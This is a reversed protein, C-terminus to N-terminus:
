FRSLFNDQIASSILEQTFDAFGRLEDLKVWSYQDHESSLIIKQPYKIRLGFLYGSTPRNNNMQSKAHLSVLNNTDFILGTEENIERIIADEFSEKEELGGGPLDIMLPRSLHSASRRLVLVEDNANIILANAFKIVRM